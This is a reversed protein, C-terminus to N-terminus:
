LKTAELQTLAKLTMGTAACMVLFSGNIPNPSPLHTIWLGASVFLLAISASLTKM